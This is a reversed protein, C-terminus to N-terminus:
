APTLIINNNNPRMATSRVYIRGINNCVSYRTVSTLMAFVASGISIGNPSLVETTGIFWTYSQTWTRWPFSRNPLFPVGMTSYLSLRGHATCFVAWSFQDLHWKSPSDAPGISGRTLHPGLHGMPLSLKSPSPMDRFARRCQWSSHFFPQVSRSAMQTISKTPSLSANNAPPGSRFIKPSLVNGPMGTSVTGHATCFDSCRDLHTTSEPQGLSAHILHPACQRLRAFVMSDDM